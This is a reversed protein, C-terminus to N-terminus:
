LHKQMFRIFIDYDDPFVGHGGLHMYYGLTNLMSDDGPEPMETKGLGKKGFLEYVPEAAKAALFEGKPDSWNDTSGTQLLLPRPAILSILMHGDVPLDNVRNAYDHYHPAFQYFYRSTDTMQAVTEGYNRRSLAAGSEGSVSAIVMAFRTDRAGTWLATKGLRSAGTVAVRKADIDKDTEIYDMARSLGWSWASIAGWEDSAVQTTGPKLYLSRIGYKIGKKFDPEIDGYYVTAYGFGNSIFKEINVKGFNSNTAPVRKDGKWVLGKKIGPDDVVTSNASFSINLLLPVPKATMVPLYILLDMKHDSTDKTFYITVQRRIAKGNFVLTGKDFVNFSLDVPKSPTKGFQNEEFLRLIEQRRKKTWMASKTIKKGNMSILPDPLTYTGVLAEDYNVPFGAVLKPANSQSYSETSSILMTACLLFHLINKYNMTNTNRQNM